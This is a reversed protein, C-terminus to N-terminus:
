DLELKRYIRELRSYNWWAPYIGFTVVALLLFKVFDGFEVPKTHMSHDRRPGSRLQDGPRIGSM